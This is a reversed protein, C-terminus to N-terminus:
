VNKRKEKKKPPLPHFCFVVAIQSPCSWIWRYAQCVNWIKRFHSLCVQLISSLPYFVSISLSLVQLSSALHLWLLRSKQVIQLDDGHELHRPPELLQRLSGTFWHGVRHDHDFWWARQYFFSFVGGNKLISDTQLEILQDIRNFFGWTLHNSRDCLFSEENPNNAELQM